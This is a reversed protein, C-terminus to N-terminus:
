VNVRSIRGVADNVPCPVKLDRSSYVLWNIVDSQVDLQIIFINVDLVRFPAVEKRSRGRILPIM